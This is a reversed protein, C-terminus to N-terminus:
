SSFFPFHFALLPGAEQSVIQCPRGKRKRRCDWLGTAMKFSDQSVLQVSLFRPKEQRLEPFFQCKHSSHIGVELLSWLPPADTSATVAQPWHQLKKGSICPSFKQYTSSLSHKRDRFEAASLPHIQLAIKRKEWEILSMVLGTALQAPLEPSYLQMDGLTCRTDHLHLSGM